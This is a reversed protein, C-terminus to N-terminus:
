QLKLNKALNSNRKNTRNQKGTCRRWWWAEHLNDEDCPVTKKFFKSVIFCRKFSFCISNLKNATFFDFTLLLKFDISVGIHALFHLVNTFSLFFFCSNVGVTNQEEWFLFVLCVFFNKKKVLKMKECPMFVFFQEQTM